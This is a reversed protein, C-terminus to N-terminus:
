RNEINISSEIPIVYLKIVTKPSINATPNSTSPGMTIVSYALASCSRPMRLLSEYMFEEYLINQGIIAEANVVIAANKGRRNQGSVSPCHNLTIGRVTITTKDVESTTVNINRGATPDM